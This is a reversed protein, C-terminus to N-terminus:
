SELIYLALMYKDRLTGPKLDSLNHIIDARKVINSIWSVKAAKIYDLYDPYNHKNLRYLANYIASRIGEHYSKPYYPSLTDTIINESYGLCDEAEDHSLAVVEVIDASYQSFPSVSWKGYIDRAIKAVTKTHEIYPTIGDKRFQGAHAKTALDLSAKVLPSMPKLVEPIIPKM